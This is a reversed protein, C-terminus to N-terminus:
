AGFALAPDVTVARRLGAISGLVGVVVAIVLLVVYAGSPIEVGVPILPEFVRALVMATAAAGVALIVAQILLGAVVFGNSAGTAKMVAFDKIRELSSMYLIAGIIAAAILWLLIDIVQITDSAQGIPRYLDARVADNTMVQMEPPQPSPVGKTVITSVFPQGKLLLNQADALPMFAVPTGAFYTLGHTLGVVRFDRNLIHLKTGIKADFKRDVVLEGSHQPLRGKVLATSGLGGFRMGVINLDRVARVKVAQRFLVLPAADAVGPLAKVKSVDSNILFQTSTFPGAVGAPVIWRDVNFASVTRSTENHFFATIGGLLLTISFVLATAAVGIVFRRLRWQLDRLGIFFM